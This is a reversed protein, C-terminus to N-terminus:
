PAAAASGETVSGEVDGEGVAGLDVCPAGGDGGVAWQEDDFAGGAVSGREVIEDVLAYERARGRIQEPAGELAGVVEEKDAGGAGIEARQEDGEGGFGGRREGHQAAGRGPGLSLVDQEVAVV